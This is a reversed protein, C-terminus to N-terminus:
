GNEADDPIALKTNLSSTNGFEMEEYALPQTM